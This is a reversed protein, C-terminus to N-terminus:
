LKDGAQKGFDVLAQEFRDVVNEWTFKAATSPGNKRFRDALEPNRLLTLIGDALSQPDRPPVLICNEMPRAYDRVGKSDTMVVPAGCAMAELPPLGFGEVWSASVFVACSQYLKALAQDDPRTIVKCPLSDPIHLAMKSTIWFTVEPEKEYVLHAAHIFDALGKRPRDDGLFLVSKKGQADTEQDNRNTPYHFTAPDSLGISINIVPREIGSSLLVERCYESIAVAGRHWRLANRLLWSELPRGAFMEPYDLFYWVPQGRKFVHSAIYVPVTTPTHTSVIVDSPPVSQALSYSLGVLKLLNTPKPLPAASEVVDVGREVRAAMKPDVTGRPVILSVRHDRQCLRNAIETIAGVGGSLWFSSLVFSINMYNETIRTLKLTTLIRGPLM